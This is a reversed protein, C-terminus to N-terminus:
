QENQHEGNKIGLVYNIVRKHVYGERIILPIDTVGSRCDVITTHNFAPCIGGNIVLDVNINTKDVFALVEKHSIAPGLDVKNNVNSINVTTSLIPKSYHSVIDGLLGPLMSVLADTKNELCYKKALMESFWTLHLSLEGPWLYEILNNTNENVVFLTKAFQKDPILFLPPKSYPRRKATFIKELGSRNTADCCIMYWRITPVIVIGGNKLTNITSKFIKADEAPIIKM